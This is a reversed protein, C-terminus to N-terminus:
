TMLHEAVVIVLLRASPRDKSVMIRSKTIPPRVMASLTLICFGKAQMNLLKCTTRIRGHRIAQVIIHNISLPDWDWAWEYTHPKSEMNQLLRQCLRQLMVQVWPHCPHCPHCSTSLM